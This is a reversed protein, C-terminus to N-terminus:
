RGEPSVPPIFVGFPVPMAVRVWAPPRNDRPPISRAVEELELLHGVVAAVAAAEYVGAGGRIQIFSPGDSM